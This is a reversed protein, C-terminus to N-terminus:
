WIAELREKAQARRRRYESDGIEGAEHQRDLEAIALLLGAKERENSDEVTVAAPRSRRYITYAAVAVVGLAAAALAAFVAGQVNGGGGGDPLGTLIAQIPAGAELNEARARLYAQGEFVTEEQIFPSESALSAKGKPMLISVTDTPLDLSTRFVYDSGEYPLSYSFAVQRSGPVWPSTDTFGSDTTILDEVLLGDIIGVELADSPVSFRLTEPRQQSEDAAEGVYTRDGSNDVVILESVVLSQSEEDAEIVVHLLSARIASPDSTTEYVELEQDALEEASALSSLFSIYDIDAYVAVLQYAAEPSVPVEEFTFAGAEDTLTERTTPEGLGYITLTVPLGATSGGGATGNVVTGTVAGEEEAQSVASGPLLALAPLLLSLLALALRRM